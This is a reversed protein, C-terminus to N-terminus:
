PGFYKRSGVLARGSPMEIYITRHPDLKSSQPLACAVWARPIGAVSGFRQVEVRQAILTHVM